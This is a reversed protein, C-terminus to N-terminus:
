AWVRLAGVVGQVDRGLPTLAYEVKPPVAPYVTRTLLGDRELSRLTETLMKQSVGDLRKRIQTFRLTGAGLSDLVLVAWKSALRDLLHRTPCAASFADAPLGSSRVTM